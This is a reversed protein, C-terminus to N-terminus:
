ILGCRVFHGEQLERLDPMAERCSAQAYECRDAFRCGEPFRAANPVTGPISYLTKKEEDVSPVSALLARTYPHLPTSFVQDGSGNEVVQGAYMVVVRDAMEAVVGLDHTIMMISTGFEDRMRRMLELVQAQITVDLATTPEDAILLKPECIMAMAIMVRQRMGGSLQHPYSRIIESARAVGVFQLMETAKELAEKKPTKRHRRLVEVLQDGITLVPNLSTMPEQFIMSIDQGRIDSIQRESLTLLDLGDFWVQGDVIKGKPRPVLGMVSLSTMSKGSGSEGVICVIQGADIDIDVGDVARVDADRGSFYTKLNRISLVPQQM